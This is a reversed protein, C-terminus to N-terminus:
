GFRGFSQVPSTWWAMEPTVFSRKLSELLAEANESKMLIQILRRRSRGRVQELTTRLAAGRGVGESSTVSFGSVWQPHAALQDLVEEELEAPVALTLLCDYADDTM